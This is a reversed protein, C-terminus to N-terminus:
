RTYILGFQEGYPVTKVTGCFPNGSPLRGLPSPLLVSPKSPHPIVLFGSPLFVREDRSAGHWQVRATGLINQPM